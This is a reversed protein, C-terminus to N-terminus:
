IYWLKLLVLSSRHLVASHKVVMGLYLKKRKHKQVHHPVHHLASCGVRPALIEDWEMMCVADLKCQNFKLSDMKQMWYLM